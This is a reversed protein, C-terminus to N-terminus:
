VVRLNSEPIIGIPAKLVYTFPQSCFLNGPETVQKRQIVKGDADYWVVELPDVATVPVPVYSPADFVSLLGDLATEPWELSLGTTREEVSAAVYVERVHGGDFHVDLVNCFKFFNASETLSELKSKVTDGFDCIQLDYRFGCSLRGRQGADLEESLSFFSQFGFRVGVSKGTEAVCRHHQLRMEPTGLQCRFRM